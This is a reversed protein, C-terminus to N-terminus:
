DGSRLLLTGLMFLLVGFATLQLMTAMTIGQPQLNLLLVYGVGLLGAMQLIRGIMVVM